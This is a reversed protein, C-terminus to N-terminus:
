HRTGEMEERKKGASFSCSLFSGLPLRVTPWSPIPTASTTREDWREDVDPQCTVQQRWAETRYWDSYWRTEMLNATRKNRGTHTGLGTGPKGGTKVAASAMKGPRKGCSSYKSLTLKETERPTVLKWGTASTDPKMAFTDGLTLGLFPNVAPVRGARPGGSRCFSSEILPNGGGYCCCCCSCCCGWCCCCCFFSCCNSVFWWLIFLHPLSCSFFPFFPFLFVWFTTTWMGPM